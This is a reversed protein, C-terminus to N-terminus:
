GARRLQVRLWAVGGLQRMQRQVWRQRQELYASPRDLRYRRPAPLLVALRAAPEAGLTGAARGYHHRAAACAGYVGPGWEAVQLYLMLIRSKPLLAEVLVTFWAELAKRLWSRGSWLFLNKALQQSITSAGRLRGGARASDVARQLETWDFGRHEFFRQDESAIVALALSEPLSSLACRLERNPVGASWAEIRRELMLMSLPPDVYRYALVWGVSLLVFGLTLWLLGRLLRRWWPRRPTTSLSANLPVHRM